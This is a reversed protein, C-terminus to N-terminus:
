PQRSRNLGDLKLQQERTLLHHRKAQMHASKILLNTLIRAETAALVRTETSQGQDVAALLKEQTSQLQAMLPELERREELVLRQIARIQTSTLSLYEALSSDIDLPPFPLDVIVTESDQGQGSDGQAAPTVQKAGAAASGAQALSKVDSPRHTHPFSRESSAITAIALIVVLEVKM